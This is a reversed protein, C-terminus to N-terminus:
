DFVEAIEPLEDWQPLAHDEAERKHRAAESFGYVVALVLGTAASRLLAMEGGAATIALWSIVAAIGGAAGGFLAFNREWSAFHPPRLKIGHSWVFRYFAPVAKWRPIDKQALLRVAKVCQAQFSLNM